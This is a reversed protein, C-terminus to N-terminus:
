KQETFNEPLLPQDLKIGLDNLMQEILTILTTINIKGGEVAKLVDGILTIAIGFYKM